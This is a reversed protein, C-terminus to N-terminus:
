EFELRYLGYTDLLARDVERDITLTVNVPNKIFQYRDSIVIRVVLLSAGYKRLVTDRYVKYDDLDESWSFEDKVKWGLDLRTKRM